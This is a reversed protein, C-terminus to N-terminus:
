NGKTVNESGLKKQTASFIDNLLGSSEMFKTGVMMDYGNIHEIVSFEATYPVHGIQVTAYVTGTITVQAGDVVSATNKCPKILHSIGLETCAKRSIVDLNCGTDFLGTIEATKSRNKM